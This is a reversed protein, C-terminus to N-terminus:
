GILGGKYFVKQDPHNQVIRYYREERATMLRDTSDALGDGRDIWGNVWTDFRVFALAPNTLALKDVGSKVWYYDRYIEKAEAETIKDVSQVGLQRKKQYIGYTEQTIGFHTL